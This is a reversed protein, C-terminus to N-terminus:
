AALQLAPITIAGPGTEEGHLLKALTQRARSMRSKITGVACDCIRAADEYSMGEAGILLVAERQCPPLKQLAALLDQLDLYGGQEPRVTLRGSYEDDVDAVAQEAVLVRLVFDGVVVSVPM